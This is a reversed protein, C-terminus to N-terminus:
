FPSRTDPLILAYTRVASPVTARLTPSAAHPLLLLLVVELLPAAALLVVLLAALEDLELLPKLTPSTVSM